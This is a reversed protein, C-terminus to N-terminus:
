WCSRIVCRKSLPQNPKLVQSCGFDIARLWAGELAMSSLACPSNSPLAQRLLFNAPKVDGHVVGIQHCTSIVQLAYAILM